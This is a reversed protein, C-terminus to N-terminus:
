FGEEDLHHKTKKLYLITRLLVSYLGLLVLWVAWGPVFKFGSQASLQSFSSVTEPYSTVRILWAATLLLFVWIYTRSLRLSMAERISLPQYPCLTCKALKERWAGGAVADRDGALIKAFLETEMLRVRWDITTYFGYRRAEIMLFMLVLFHGLFLVAHGAEGGSFGFSFIAATAAVAWNTTNDVIRRWTNSRTVLARYFHVLASIEAPNGLLGAKDEKRNDKM